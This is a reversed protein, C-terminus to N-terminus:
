QIQFSLKRTASAKALKDIVTVQLVYAGPALGDLLVDAAYPVRQVDPIGETQIKHLPTTIVPEDDRFVQVQVALDPSATNNTSAPITKGGQNPSSNSAGVSANYIFTLFRLYSSSAFRHDVNVVVRKLPEPQQPDNASADLPAVGDETKKEGIVLSSLALEKNAVNPVEIWEYASGRAGTKVDIAAVRVQYLGPKVLSFHNYFINEPPKSNTNTAAGKITFRKNFTSISKGQDNLVLGAVDLTGVTGDPQKELAL